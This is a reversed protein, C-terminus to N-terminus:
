NSKGKIRVGFGEGGRGVRRRQTREQKERGEWRPSEIKIRGM